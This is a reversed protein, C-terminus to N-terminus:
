SRVFKVVECLALLRRLLPEQRIPQGAGVKAAFDGASLNTSIILPRPKGERCGAIRLDLLRFFWGQAWDERATTLAEQGLDDLILIERSACEEVFPRAEDRGFKLERQLASFWDGAFFYRVERGEECALRRYLGFISRSKGSGTPGSLLLGRPGVQWALVREIAARNAALGPHAWDSEPYGLESDHLFRQEADRRRGERILKRSLEELEAERAAPDLPAKVGAAAFMEELEALLEDDRKM